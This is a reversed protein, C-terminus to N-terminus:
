WFSVKKDNKPSHPAMTHLDICIAGQLKARAVIHCLHEVYRQHLDTLAQRLEPHKSYDIINRLCNPYLRGADLVARPFTPEVILVSVQHEKWCHEAIAHALEHTGFDYEISLYRQFDEANLQVLEPIQPFKKFFADGFPAHPCTIVCDFNLDNSYCTLIATEHHIVKPM